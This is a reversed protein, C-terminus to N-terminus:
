KKVQSIRPLLRGALVIGVIMVVVVTRYMVVLGHVPADAGGVIRAILGGSFSGLVSGAGSAAYFLSALRGRQQRLGLETAYLLAPAEYSAYAFSRLLQVAILWGLATSVTYCLYVTTMCAMGTLLVRKRGWRDALWGALMLCPVEGLAALAWLSGVTTQSYGVGRMYVPWVFVISGMAFTWLFVLTLFSGIARRSVLQNTPTPTDADPPPATARRQTGEAIRFSLLFGLVYCVGALLIPARMALNDSLWGGSFAAISFALSGWTRYLGMLRGRSAQNELLDGILALSGTSYAAMSLGELVRFPFLWIWDRSLAIGLYAIAMGITGLLLLPKRRGLRDSYRGWWFQSLLSTLQFSGVVLNIELIDAHLSQIYVSLLPALLGTSFYVLFLVGSLKWFSGRHEVAIGAFRAGIATRYIM